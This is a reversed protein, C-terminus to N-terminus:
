AAAGILERSRDYRVETLGVGGLGPPCRHDPNIEVTEGGRHDPGYDDPRDPGREGRLDPFGGELLLRIGADFNGQSMGGDSGEFRLGSGAM